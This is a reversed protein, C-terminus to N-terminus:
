SCSRLLVRVWSLRACWVARRWTGGAQELPRGIVVAADAAEASSAGASKRQQLLPPLRAGPDPLADFVIVTIDDRLGRAKLALQVQAARIHFQDRTACFATRVIQRRRHHPMQVGCLDFALSLIGSSTAPCGQQCSDKLLNFNEM